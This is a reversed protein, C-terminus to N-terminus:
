GDTFGSGDLTFATGTGLNTGANWDGAYMRGGVFIDPSTGIPYEGNPGLDVPEGSDTIFKRRNAEVTLDLYQGPYYWVDALKKSYGPGNPSAGISVHDMSNYRIEGSGPSDDYTKQVDDIYVYFVTANRAILIHHLTDDEAPTISGNALDTSSDRGLKYDLTGSSASGSIPPSISTRLDAGNPDVGLAFLMNASGQTYDDIKYWMSLIFKNSDTTPFNFTTSKLFSTNASVIHQEYIAKGGFGGMQMVKLM